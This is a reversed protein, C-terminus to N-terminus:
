GKHKNSKRKGKQVKDGLDVDDVLGRARINVGKEKSKRRIVVIKNM